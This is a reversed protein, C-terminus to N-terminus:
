DQGVLYMSVARKELPTLDDASSFRSYTLGISTMKNGATVAANWLLLSDEDNGAHLEGMECATILSRGLKVIKMEQEPSSYISREM